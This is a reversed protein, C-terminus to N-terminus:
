KKKYLVITNELPNLEKDCKTCKFNDPLSNLSAYFSGRNNCSECFEQFCYELIRSEEYKDLINYIVHIDLELCEKFDSISVVEDKKYNNIKSAFFDIYEHIHKEAVDKKKLIKVLEKNDM